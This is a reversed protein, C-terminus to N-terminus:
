TGCQRRPRTVCVREDCLGAGCSSRFICRAGDKEKGWLVRKGDWNPREGEGREEVGDQGGGECCRVRLGLGFREDGEGCRCGELLRVRGEGAWLDHLDM